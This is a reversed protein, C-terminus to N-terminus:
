PLYILRQTHANHSSEVRLFYTGAAHAQANWSLLTIGSAFPQNDALTAVARGLRDYILATIRDAVPVSLAIHVSSNFPNPYAPSVVFEIALPQDGLASQAETRFSWLAGETVGAQNVSNIRWYYMTDFLLDNTMVFNTMPIAGLYDPTSTLGWYIQYSEAGNAAGWSVLTLTVPVNQAGNAPSPNAVQDPLPPLEAETSFHWTTGTTTGFDNTPDVRWVYDAAYNLVDPITINTATTSGISWYADELGIFIEYSNARNAATWALLTNMVPVDVASDPPSPNTALGPPAEIVDEEAVLVFESNQGSNENTGQFSGAYLRVTGTGEAPALWNFTGSTHNNTSFHVGNTEQAVNYTSVNAGNSLTGANTSGTGVRVSANFNNISQGSVAAITILYTSDPVYSEPFGTIEVTGNSQGHCSSACSGLTGPAGSYARFNSRALVTGAVSLLLLLCVTRTLFM